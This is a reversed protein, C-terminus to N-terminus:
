GHLELYEAVKLHAKRIYNIGEVDGTLWGQIMKVYARDMDALSLMHGNITCTWVPSHSGLVVPGAALALVSICDHALGDSGTRWNDYRSAGHAGVPVLQAYQNIMRLPVADREADRCLELVEALDTGLPKECLIPVGYDWVKRIHQVHMYTPTAILVGDFSGAAPFGDGADVPVFDVGLYKLIAAYRRGMSGDAGLIVPRNIM